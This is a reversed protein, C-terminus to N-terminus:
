TDSRAVSRFREAVAADLLVILGWVLVVIASPTCYCGVVLLLGALLAAFGLGRSRHRWLRYAALGQLAGVGLHVAGLIIFAIVLSTETFLAVEANAGTPAGMQGLEAALAGGFAGMFLGFLAVLGAHVALAISFVRLHGLMRSSGYLREHCPTCLAEAADKARCDGCMFSGCRVCTGAVAARDPHLACRATAHAMVLM